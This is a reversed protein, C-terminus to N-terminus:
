VSCSVNVTEMTAIAAISLDYGKDAAQKFLRLAECINKEVGTGEKYCCALGHLAPPHEQDAALRYLRFAEAPCYPIGLRTGFSHYYAMATQAHASGGASSARLLRLSEAKNKRRLAGEDILRSLGFQGAPDGQEAASTFLRLCPKRKKEVGNGTRYCEALKAQASPLNQGAALRYWYIGQAKDKAVGMGDTMYCDGLNCQATALGQSAALEFYKTAWQTNSVVGVGRQHCCGMMNQALPHHQNVAKKYLSIAGDLSTTVGHGFHCCQGLRFQACGLSKASGLLAVALEANVEMGIGLLNYEALYYSCHESATKEHGCHHQHLWDITNKGYRTAMTADTPVITIERDAYCIAVVCRAAMSGHDLVRNYLNEWAEWCGCRVELFHQHCIEFEAIDPPTLTTPQTAPAPQPPLSKAAVECPQLNRLRKKNKRSLISGDGDGGRKKTDFFNKGPSSLM